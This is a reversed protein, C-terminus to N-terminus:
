AGPVSLGPVVYYQATPALFLRPAFAEVAHDKVVLQTAARFADPVVAGAAPPVPAMGTVAVAPQPHVATLLTGHIVM